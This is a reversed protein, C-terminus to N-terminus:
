RCMISYTLYIFRRWNSLYSADTQIM